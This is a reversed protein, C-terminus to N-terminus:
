EALGEPQRWVYLYCFVPFVLMNGFFFLAVWLQRKAPPVYNTKYTFTTLTVLLFLLIGNLLYILSFGSDFPQTVWFYTVPFPALSALLLLLSIGKNM